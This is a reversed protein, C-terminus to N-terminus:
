IQVMAFGYYTKFFAYYHGSMVSGSHVLVGHLHYIQSVSRDAQSCLFENLSLTLNFTFKDNVKVYSERDYDYEFRKLHLHM